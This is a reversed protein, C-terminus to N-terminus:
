GGGVKRRLRDQGALGCDLGFWGGVSLRAAGLVGHAPLGGGGRSGVGEARGEAGGAGVAVWKRWGGPVALELANSLRKGCGRVCLNAMGFAVEGHETPIRM